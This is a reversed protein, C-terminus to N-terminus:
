SFKSIVEFWVEHYNVTELNSLRYIASTHRNPTVDIREDSVKFNKVKDPFVLTIATLNTFNNIHRLASRAGPNDLSNPFSYLALKWPSSRECAHEIHEIGFGYESM